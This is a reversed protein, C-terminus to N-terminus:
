KKDIYFFKSVESYDVVTYQGYFNYSVGDITDSYEGNAPAVGNITNFAVKAGDGDDQTVVLGSDSPVAILLLSYKPVVGFSTKDMTKAENIKTVTGLDVAELICEETIGSYGISNTLNYKQRLDKSIYGYYM